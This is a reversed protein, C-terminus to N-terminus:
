VQARVVPILAVRLMLTASVLTLWWPTGTLEHFSVLGTQVTEIISFGAEVAKGGGGEVAEVSSASTSNPSISMCEDSLFLSSKTGGNVNAIASEATFFRKSLGFSRSDRDDAYHFFQPTTRVYKRVGTGARVWAARRATSWYCAKVIANM